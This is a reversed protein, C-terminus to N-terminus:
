LVLNVKNQEKEEKLAKSNDEYKDILTKNYDNQSENKSIGNGEENDEKNSKVIKKNSSELEKGISKDLSNIKENLKNVEKQKLSPEFELGSASARSKDLKIEMKLISTRNEMQNKISLQTKAKDLNTAIDTMQEEQTQEEAKKTDPKEEEEKEKMVQKINEDIQKIQEQLDKIRAKREKLMQEKTTPDLTPDIKEEKLKTIIEQISEKQKSLNKIRDQVSNGSVPNNIQMNNSTKNDEEKNKKVTNPNTMTLYSYNTSINM